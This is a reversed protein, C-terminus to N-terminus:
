LNIKKLWIIQLEKDADGNIDFKMDGTAGYYKPMQELAVKLNNPNIDKEENKIQLINKELIKFADYGHASFANPERDTYNQKYSNVFHMTEPKLSESSFQPYTFFVKDILKGAAKKIDNEFFSSVGAVYFDCDMENLQKLILVAEKYYSPLFLVDPNSAKIKSILTKFNTQGNSYGEDFVIETTNKDLNMKFEKNIGVGYTSNDYLVAIRGLHLSDVIYSASYKGDKDDTPWIRFFYDNEKSLNVDTAKPSLLLIKKNNIIPLLGNAVNSMIGGIIIDVGKFTLNNLANVGKTVDAADDEYYLEIEDKLPSEQYALDIGKKLDDGYIAGSGTLPLIVGVKIKDSEKTTRGKKAYWYGAGALVLLAAIVIIIISKKKM